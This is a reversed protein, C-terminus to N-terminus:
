DHIEVIDKDQLLATKHVHMGDHRGEGWLRAFTMKDPLDRHIQRALEEVASGVPLTFPKSKDVPKGPEKTFVRIVSLLQWVRDRLEDLGRPTASSVGMVEIRGALLEALTGVAEEGGPRDIKTAVMLGCCAAKDAPDIQSRPVSLLKLERQTFVDLLMEAEELCDGSADVVLLAVDGARVTGMLGPPVHEATLPPTDVLQIQAGGCPWMGPCPVVTTFPYEAVKVPANTTAAVLSSKGCNPPGLLVAQGAGSRPVHFPDPGKAAVPKKGEGKKLQSIRHKLDAQLKESAKHKPVLRLMEQLADLREEDSTAQRYRENAKEYQPTVNTAM